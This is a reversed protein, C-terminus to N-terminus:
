NGFKTGGHPNHLGKLPIGINRYPWHFFFGKENNKRISPVFGLVFGMGIMALLWEKLILGGFLMIVLVAFIDTIQWHDLIM